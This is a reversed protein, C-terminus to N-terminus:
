KQEVLIIRKEVQKWCTPAAILGRWSETRRCAYNGRMRHPIVRDKGSFVIIFKYLLYPLGKKTYLGRLLNLESLRKRKNSVTKTDELLLDILLNIKMTILSILLKPLNSLLEIIEKRAV